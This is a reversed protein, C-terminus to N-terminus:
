ANASGGKELSRKDSGKLQIVISPQGIRSALRAGLAAQLQEISLNSTFINAKNAAMRADIFSLLYNIEYESGVKSALDDWIVLDATLIHNKIHDIDERTRSISDKLGQLFGPVNIYLGRCTLESRAWIRNFYAQMLRLGWSTKGNGCNASYLYLNRGDNVFTLIDQEIGALQKFEELDTGDADIRLAFRVRQFETMQAADFLFDLKYKRLCFDSGCDKHNCQNYMYCETM